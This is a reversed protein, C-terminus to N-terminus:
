DKMDWEPPAYKENKLFMNFLRDGYVMYLYVKNSQRVKRKEYLLETSKNEGNLINQAMEDFRAQEVYGIEDFLQGKQHKIGAFDLKDTDLEPLLFVNKRLLSNDIYSISRANCIGKLYAIQKVIDSNAPYAYIEHKNLDRPFEAVYYKSDYVVLIYKEENAVKKFYITDPKAAGKGWFDIEGGSNNYFHYEPAGSQKSSIHKQNGFVGDNVWEWVNQFCNTCGSFRYNFTLDCWAILAKLLANERDSFTTLLENNLLRSYQSLDDINDIGGTEPLHFHCSGNFRKYVEIARRLVTLHIDAIWNEDTEYEKKLWTRDYVISNGIIIPVTKGVTKQWAIRGKGHLKYVRNTKKYVGNQIYDNVLFTSLEYLNVRRKNSEINIADFLRDGEFLNKGEARLKEIAKSITNLQVIEQESPEGNDFKKFYKPFSYWRSGDPFSYVGVMKIIRKDVFDDYSDDKELAEKLEDYDTVSEGEVTYFTNSEMYAEM